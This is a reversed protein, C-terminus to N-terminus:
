AGTVLRNQAFVHGQMEHGAEPHVVPAELNSLADADGFGAMFAQGIRGSFHDHLTFRQYRRRKRLKEQLFTEFARLTAGSVHHEIGEADRQAIEEDIGLAMLFSLVTQHRARCAQALEEGADTLFISRYRERRVLGDRTLRALNKTVTPPKVGLREAMDVPRAEGTAEILEAILEVYDEAMESEHAQRVRSFGDAQADVTRDDTPSLAQMDPANESM